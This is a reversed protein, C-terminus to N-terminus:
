ATASAALSAEQSGLALLRMEAQSRSDCGYERGSGAISVDSDKRQVLRSQTFNAEVGARSSTRIRDDARNRMM